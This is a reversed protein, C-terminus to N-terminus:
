GKVLDSHPREGTQNGQVRDGSRKNIIILHNDEHLIQINDSNSVIKSM